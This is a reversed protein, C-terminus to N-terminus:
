RGDCKLNSEISNHVTSLETLLCCLSCCCGGGGSLWENSNDNPEPYNTSPTTATPELTHLPSSSERDDSAREGNLMQKKHTQIAHPNRNTIIVFIIIATANMSWELTVCECVCAYPSRTGRVFSNCHKISNKNPPFQISHMTLLWCFM